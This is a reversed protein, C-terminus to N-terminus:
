IRLLQNLFVLLERNNENEKKAMKIAKSLNINKEKVVLKLEAMFDPLKNKVVEWVISSDIGFYSHVIYNRFDVIIRYSKEDIIELKILKNTAEGIIELQRITGDWNLESYLFEESNDFKKTYRFIKNIAILIDVIYLSVDRKFM